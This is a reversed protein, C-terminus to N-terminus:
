EIFLLKRCTEEPKDLICAYGALPELDTDLMIKAPLTEFVAMFDDDAEMAKFVRDGVVIVDCSQGHHHRFSNCLFNMSSFLSTSDKSRPINFIHTAFEM